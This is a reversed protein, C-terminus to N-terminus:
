SCLLLLEAKDGGENKWRSPIEEKLYVSDGPRLTKKRNEVVVSIDGKLLYILKKGGEPIFQTEISAYPELVILTGSMNGNKVIRYGKLGNEDLSPAAFINEKKIFWPVDDTIKEELIAGPTVGLANCIQMFSNLSPSIQNNELQSIFSPTLEVRDALEKQSMGAQIRLEKIKGGIDFLPEKRASTIIIRKNSDIEYPHPKFADRQSRGDLKLTKIYLKDKKRYLDIVVQTIHRLNAKFTQSHAEKELIWYAITGLDYLRPCMYTFFKYTSNENGWLDQMGTLSDFIYRTGTPLSDEISKLISTFGDINAPEPVKIINPNTNNEYFKIFTRDNKGKGATFCDLLTFNDELSVTGIQQLISQPSKNFSIYIVHQKDTFSQRIFHHLFIEPSTGAEVEWVVNDGAFLSDILGDLATIGSNIKTM